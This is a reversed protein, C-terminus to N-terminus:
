HKAFDVNVAGPKLCLRCDKCTVAGGSTQQPCPLMKEGEAFYAKKGDHKATALAFSKYGAAKAAIGDEISHVSAILNFHKANKPDLERWNHTYAWAGGGGKATWVAVAADVAKLHANSVFDGSVHLRLMQGPKPSATRIMEAEEIPNCGMTARVHLNVRGKQAYCGNGLFPCTSPCTGGDEVTGVPLYTTAVGEGLKKNKPKAWNVIPKGTTM